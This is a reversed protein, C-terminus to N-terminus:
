KVRSIVNNNRSTAQSLADPSYDPVGFVLVAVPKKNDPIRLMRRFKAAKPGNFVALPTTIIHTGLGLSQAAISMNECALAADFLDYPRNTAISIVILAPARFFLQKNQPVDSAGEAAAEQFAAIVETNLKAIIKRNQVVSFHWPQRNGASPAKIGCKIILEVTQAAIKQRRFAKTTSSNILTTITSNPQVELSKGSKKFNSLTVVISLLILPVILMTLIKKYPHKKPIPLNTEKAPANMIIKRWQQNFVFTILIDDSLYDQNYLDNLL